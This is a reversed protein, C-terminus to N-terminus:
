QSVYKAVHEWVHPPDYSAHPNQYGAVRGRKVVHHSNHSADEPVDTPPLIKSVSSTYNAAAMSVVPRSDTTLRHILALLKSSVSGGRSLSLM